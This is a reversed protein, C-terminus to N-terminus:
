QIKQSNGFGLLDITYVPHNQAVFQVNNRWHKLSAGFGHLLILPPNQQGNIVQKQPQYSYHIKWGRWMWDRQNGIKAQWPFNNKFKM